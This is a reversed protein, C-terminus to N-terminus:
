DFNYRLEVTVQDGDTDASYGSNAAAIRKADIRTLEVGWRWQNPQYFYAITASHGDEDTNVGIGDRDDIQFKEIRVSVRQAQKHWSLLAYASEFDADVHNSYAGMLTNGSSYEGLVEWRPNITWQAGVIYFETYWAYEEGYLYLDGRNNITSLTLHFDENPIIEMMAAYGWRGDLDRSFPKSGEDRQRWFPGTSQLSALPPLPLIENFLSLRQSNRWGGWALQAGATDNGKFANFAFNLGSNGVLQFYDVEVGLPRFEHGIWSNLTSYTLTYPSEWLADSAELATPFFRQGLSIAVDAAPRNLVQYTIYAEVIGIDKSVSSADDARLSGHLTASVIDNVKWDIVVRSEAYGHALTDDRQNNGKNSDGFDLRGFGGENWSTTSQSAIAQGAIFGYVDVAASSNSSLCLLVAVAFFGVFNFPRRRVEM